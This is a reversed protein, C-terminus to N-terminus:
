YLAQLEGASTQPLLPDVIAELTGAGLNVVTCRGPLVIACPGCFRRFDTATIIKGFGNLVHLTGPGGTPLRLHYRGFGLITLRFPVAPWPPPPQEAARRAPLAPTREYRVLPYTTTM